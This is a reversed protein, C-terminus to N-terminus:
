FKGGIVSMNVKYENIKKGTFSVVNIPLVIGTSTHIYFYSFSDVHFCITWVTSVPDYSKTIDVNEIVVATHGPDTIDGNDVKSIVLNTYPDISPWGAANADNNFSLRDDDLFYLCVQAGDQNAPEILYHRNLYPQGNHFPTPCIIEETVNTNGM